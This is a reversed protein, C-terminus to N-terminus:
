PAADGAASVDLALARDAWALSVGGDGVTITFTEVHDIPENAVTVSAVNKDAEYGFAGWQDAVSNLVVTTEEEGPITFLAYTGAPVATGEVLVDSDFTITTAEDAGTRWVQGYPVLGGWITRGNANPRGYEIVIGVGDLSGEARGNKSKRESDDGREAVAVGAALVALALILAIKSRKTM